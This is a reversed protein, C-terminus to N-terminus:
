NCYNLICRPGVDFEDPNPYPVGVCLHGINLRIRAKAVTYHTIEVYALGVVVGVQEM